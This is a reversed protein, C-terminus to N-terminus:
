VGITHMVDLPLHRRAWGRRVRGGYHSRPALASSLLSLQETSSLLSPSTLKRRPTIRPLLAKAVLREVPSASCARSSPCRAHALRSAPMGRAGLRSSSTASPRFLAEALFAQPTLDPRSSEVRVKVFGIDKAYERFCQRCINLNYKRIIGWQNACVRSNFPPLTSPLSRLSPRPFRAFRQFGLFHRLAQRAERSPNSGGM